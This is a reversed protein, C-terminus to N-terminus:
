GGLGPESGAGFRRSSGSARMVPCSLPLPSPRGTATGPTSTPTASARATEVKVLVQGPGPTPISPPGRHQATSRVLPRSRGGMATRGTTPDGDMTVGTPDTDGPGNTRMMPGVRGAGGLPTEDAGVKTSRRPVKSGTCCTRGAACWRAHGEVAEEHGAVVSGVTIPGRRHSRLDGRRRRQGDLEQGRDVAGGREHLGQLVPGSCQRHDAGGRKPRGRLSLRVPAHSLARRAVPRVARSTPGLTRSSGSGSSRSSTAKRDSTSRSRSRVTSSSQDAVNPAVTDSISNTSSTPPAAPKADRRENYAVALDTRRRPRGRAVRTTGLRWGACASTAM